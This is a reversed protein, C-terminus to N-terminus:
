INKIIIIKKKKPNIKSNSELKNIKIINNIYNTNSSSKKNENIKNIIKGM